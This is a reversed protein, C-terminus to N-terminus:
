RYSAERKGIFIVEHNKMKKQGVACREDTTGTFIVEHNKTKIGSRM